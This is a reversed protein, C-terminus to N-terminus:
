RREIGLRAMRRYLTNRGIGLAKATNSIHWQHDRLLQRLADAEAREMTQRPSPTENTQTAHFDDPLHHREIVGDEAFVAAYQLVNILERVNGPWGHRTLLSLVDDECQVYDDSLVALLRGILDVLDNRERLPPVALRAGKIRYLLDERFKGEAVAANLDVNSACILRFDVPVSKTSGLPEVTRSELVRLLRGQAALPMDGIEDLFLTGGNAERIRGGFGDRASGTFAGGAHLCNTEILGEPLRGTNLM